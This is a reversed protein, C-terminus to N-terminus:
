ILRSRRWSLWLWLVYIAGRIDELSHHPPIENEVVFSCFCRRKKPQSGSPLSFSQMCVYVNACWHVCMHGSLHACSVLVGAYTSASVSLVRSCLGLEWMCLEWLVSPVSLDHVCMCVHEYTHLYMFVVHVCVCLSCFMCVRLCAYLPMFVFPLSGVHASVCANVRTHCCGGTLVSSRGPVCWLCIGLACVPGGPLCVGLCVCVGVCARMCWCM